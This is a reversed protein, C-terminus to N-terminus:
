KPNEPRMVIAAVFWGLFVGALAGEGLGRLANGSAAGIGIGFLAGITIGLFVFYGFRRDM